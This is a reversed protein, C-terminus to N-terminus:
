EGQGIMVVRMPWSMVGREDNVIHCPGPVGRKAHYGFM